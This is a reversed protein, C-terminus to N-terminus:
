KNKLVIRWGENELVFTKTDASKINFNQKNIKIEQAKITYPYNGCSTEKYETQTIKGEEDFTNVEEVETFYISDSSFRCYADADKVDVLLGKIRESASAIEWDHSTLIPQYNLTPNEEEKDSSCSSLSCFSLFVFLVAVVM